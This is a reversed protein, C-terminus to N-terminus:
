CIDIIGFAIKNHRSGIVKEIGLRSFESGSPMEKVVVRKRAVRCAEEIVKKELPLPNALLRLPGIAQSKMLPKRFMPDFYVIDYSNDKQERLYQGHDCNIVEIRKIAENLWRIQSNYLKMGWKVIGAIAPSSELGRVKGSPCFYSAVIADAGLGLTCDLFSDNDQLACAKVMPDPVSFKRFSALRNKAMSPHFFFKEPGCYLVPGESLWVVVGQANNERLLCELSKKKRAAFPFGSDKLFQAFDQDIDVVSQPTTAIIHMNM